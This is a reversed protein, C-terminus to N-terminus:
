KEWFLLTRTNEALSAKNLWLFKIGSKASDIAEFVEMRNGVVATSFAAFPVQGAPFLRNNDVDYVYLRGTSEKAIYIYGNGDYASMTGTTFTEFNDQPQLLEMTDTRTDLRELGLLAGGRLRIIYVGKTASNRNNYVWNLGAGAGVVSTSNTIAYATVNAVPATGVAFTLTNATNATIQLFQNLGTGALFVVYKNVLAGVAWTKSTDQLTTTSQTGTAIGADYAGIMSKLLHTAPATIAYRSIGQVPATGVAFTLTTATNSLIIASTCAGAPGQATNYTVIHNQWQNTAWNKSGDVLTSTSQATVTVSASGAGVNLTFTNAGTVTCAYGGVLNNISAGAGTDGRMKIVQGTIFNHPNVTTVTLTPNAYTASAVALPTNDAFQVSVGKASGFEMERGRLTIDSDISHTFLEPRGAFSMHLNDNDGHIVYISTSDPTTTWQPYVTLTTTATGRIHRSQGAGTGAVIEVEQNNWRNASWSKTSDTLTSVGSTTSASTVTGADFGTIIYKSTNTPAVVVAGTFTLTNITNSAIKAIQNKGTGSYIRVWYGAWQNTDWERNTDQLTTTSHTGTAIGNEWISASEGTREVSVETSVASLVLGGTANRIYWQNSLIDYYQLTYFPTAAASSVLWIGGSFIKFVSTSDPTVDWADDVTFTNSEIQYNTGVAPLAYPANAVYPSNCFLDETYKNPDAITLVTASNYLIKRTQFQGTGGVTRLLYGKYQNITYAKNTNTINNLTAATAVGVDAIVPVGISTIIREQGAGTGSVIKVKYGVASDPIGATITTSTASIVSNQFGTAYAFKMASFTVPATAPTALQSWGNSVTDYKFFQTASNLYYIYRGTKIELRPNDPSTSSSLGSSVAPSAAIIQSVPLDLQQKLQSSYPM